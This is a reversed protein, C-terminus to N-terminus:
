PVMWFGTLADIAEELSSVAEETVDYAESGQLNEPTNELVREEWAKVQELQEIIGKIAVRRRRRQSYDPAVKSKVKNRSYDAMFQTLEAAMSVNSAACARKFAAAIESDVTVKVQTRQEATKM